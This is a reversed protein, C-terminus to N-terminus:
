IGAYLIPIGDSTRIGMLYPLATKLLIDNTKSSDGAASFVASWEKASAGMQQPTAYSISENGASKSTIIGTTTGSETTTTSSGSAGAIAQQQALDIQYLKEAMACVAKRIRNAHKENEPFDDELRDFTMIDIFDSAQEAYKPFNNEPIASGMYVSTYFESSAYAM